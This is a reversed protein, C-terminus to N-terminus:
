QAVCEGNKCVSSAACACEDNVDGDADTCEAFGQPCCAYRGNADDDQCENTTLDCECGNGNVADCNDYNELCETVACTGAMCQTQANDLNCGQGCGGCNEPDSAIHTECGDSQEGNCAEWGADCSGIACAGASSCTPTAHDIVCPVCGPLACGFRPDLQDVCKVVSDMPDTCKKSTDGCDGNSLPDLDVTFTCASAATFGVLVFLLTGAYRVCTLAKL